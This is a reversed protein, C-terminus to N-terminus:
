LQFSLKSLEKTIMKETLQHYTSENAVTIVGALEFWAINQIWDDHSVTEQFARPVIYITHHQIILNYAQNKTHLKEIIIWADNANNVKHLALPYEVTGGNHHWQKACIPLATKLSVFHFHLHNVSAYSGISNFAFYTIETSKIKIAMNTILTLSHLTLLQPSCQKPNILLLLHNQTFPFKNLFCDIQTNNYTISQLMEKQLFPKNFHFGDENFDKYISTVVDNANRAPRYSRIQNYQLTWPGVQKSRAFKPLANNPDILQEFVSADDASSEPQNQSLTKLTKNLDNQLYLYLRKDTLANALCLIYTGLHKQLSLPYLKEKFAQELQKASFINLNHDM